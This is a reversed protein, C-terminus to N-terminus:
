ICSNRILLYCKVTFKRKNEPVDLHMSLVSCQKLIILAEFYYNKRHLSIDYITNLFNNNQIIFTIYVKKRRTRMAEWDAAKFKTTASFINKLFLEELFRKIM